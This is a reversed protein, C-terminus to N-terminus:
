KNIIVIIQEYRCTKLSLETPVARWLSRWLCHQYRLPNLALQQAKRQSDPWISGLNTLGHNSTSVNLCTHFNNPYCRYTNICPIWVQTSTRSTVSVKVRINQLIYWVVVLMYDVSHVTLDSELPCFALLRRM